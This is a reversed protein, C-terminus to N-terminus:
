SLNSLNRASGCSIPFSDDKRFRYPEYDCPMRFPAAPLRQRIRVFLLQVREPSGKIIKDLDREIESIQKNLLDIVSQISDRVDSIAALQLRNKESTRMRVLQARRAVLAKAVQEQESPLPRVEPQIKQAYLALVLADISDTKALRGLSKAFARVRAPNVVALPLDEGRLARTVLRECGGTSEVVMLTPSIKKVRKTLSKAGKEDNAVTFSHGHPLVHIDLKEKAVDIGIYAQTTMYPIGEKRMRARIAEASAVTRVGQM